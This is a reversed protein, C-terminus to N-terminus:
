KKAHYPKISNLIESIIDGKDDIVKKASEFFPKFLNDNYGLRVYQYAQLAMELKDV